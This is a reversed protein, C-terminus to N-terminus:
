SKVNKYLEIYKMYQIDKNYLRRAKEVCHNSYVDKGTAFVERASQLLAQLDGKEVVRGVTEDVSEPSGGTRFTVVPTGCALAEINTTPFNDELTPNIFVDATSYYDALEAINNTRGVGICKDQTFLNKQSDSLGVLVLVEDDKLLKPLQLLYETGKRRDFVSAMALLMKKDSIGLDAKLNKASPQFANTDVGNNIVKVPYEKLFSLRTLDALWQSPTVLTLNAVGTFTGKKKEFNKRTRDFFWTPPYERLSPCHGCGMEWKECNSYDFYACHGTFPWCDHLTWVVPINHMKIYDFLMGVHVFHNHINHLHIVDPRIQSMWKILQKTEEENYFGHADYLRTRLINIKRRLFSQMRFVNADGNDMEEGYAM